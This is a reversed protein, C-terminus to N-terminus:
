LESLVYDTNWIGHVIDANHHTQIGGFNGWQILISSDDYGGDTVKVLDKLGELYENWVDASINVDGPNEWEHFLYRQWYWWQENEPVQCCNYYKVTEVQSYYTAHAPINKVSCSNYMRTLEESAEIYQMTTNFSCHSYSYFDTPAVMYVIGHVLRINDNIIEVENELVDIAFVRTESNQSELELVDQFYEELWEVESWYPVDGNDIVAVSYSITDKSVIVKSGAVYGFAKNVEMEINSITTNWAKYKLSDVISKQSGNDVLQVKSQRKEISPPLSDEKSCALSLVAFFSALIM